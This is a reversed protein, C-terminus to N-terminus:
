PTVNATTTGVRNTLTVSQPTVASADGQITFPQTFIFQSGYQSSAPDQFWKSFVDEVSVSVQSNQLTQGSSAAFTFSAQTVERATSYGTIQVSLGNATRILRASQIVPAAREIRITVSPALTPTIDLGGAQLELSVTITGAVTGTQIALPVSTVAETAGSEITFAASRGGSAFQITSDGGGSDPAFSLIARGNLAAPFSSDLALRLPLQDAPKATAPLGSITISPAQPVKVNIRFLDIFAARTNDTVRITFSFAGAATAVGSIVGTNADLTLGDPLGNAVWTYPAVGGSAAVTQSYSSGLAADPLQAPTSIKLAGAAIAVTFSKAASAGATDRATLSFSFAGATTPTGSLVASNPDFRLGPVGAGTLSWTYPAAGGSVSFTQTYPVGVSGDPLTSGNPITLAPPSIVVSYSQVARNGTNDTVQVTFSFTGATQPTGQLTGLSPDLILNGASGGTIAWRYPAVGGTANFTQAYPVGVTGSFLPTGTTITLATASVTLVFARTSSSQNADTVQVTFNFTGASSPTGSIVGTSSTLVLGAPLGAGVSWRYPLVGGSASLTQSYTQGSVAAALQSPTTISFAPGAITISLTKTAFVQNVDAARVMFSFTGTASPTGSIIGASSLTLGSPLPSLLSWSYPAAGGTAALNATYPIGVTGAPVSSIDISLLPSTVPFSLGGSQTGDVNTVTITAFGPSTLLSPSVTATLLNGSVVNTPLTVGNWSTFAGTRFNSGTVTLVFGPSGATVSVPNLGSISPPPLVQAPLAAATLLGGAIWYMLRFHPMGAIM